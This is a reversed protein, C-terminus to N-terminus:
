RHRRIHASAWRERPRGPHGRGALPQYKRRRFGRSAGNGAKLALAAIDVTVNPRAEYIAGVVGFPVAVQTLRLGNPLTMGRKVDGVPDPLSAVLEVAEALGSIRKHDLRLRDQLGVSLGNAVGAALDKGNAEIIREANALLAQAISRLGANKMGTTALGLDASAVKASKIKDLATM